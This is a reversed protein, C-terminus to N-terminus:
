HIEKYLFPVMDYLAMRCRKVEYNKFVSIYRYISLVGDFTDVHNMQRFLQVANGQTSVGASM